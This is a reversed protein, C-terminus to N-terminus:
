SDVQSKISNLAARYGEALVKYDIAYILFNCKLRQWKGLEVSNAVYAGTLLNRKNAVDFISKTANQVAEASFEGPLGMSMSLDALGPMVADVMTPDMVTDLEALVKEDEIQAIVLAESDAEKFLSAFQQLGFGSGRTGTCTGRSGRPPYRSGSAAAFSAAVDRGFHPIVVGEAGIDLSRTVEETKPTSIRVLMAIGAARAARAHEAIETWCLASHERDIIVFDFGAAGIIETTSPDKGFVFTGYTTGGSRLKRKLQFYM